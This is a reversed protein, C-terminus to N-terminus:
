GQEHLLGRGVDVISGVLVHKQSLMAALPLPYYAVKDTSYGKLIAASPLPYYAVKDTSYGKLMAALPM